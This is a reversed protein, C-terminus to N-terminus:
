FPPGKAHRVALDAVVEVNAQPGLARLRDTVRTIDKRIRKAPGVPKHHTAKSVVERTPQDLLGSYVDRTVM